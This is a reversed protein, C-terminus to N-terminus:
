QFTQCFDRVISVAIKWVPFLRGYQRAGKSEMNTDLLGVLHKLNFHKLILPLGLNKHLPQPLPVICFFSLCLLSLFCIVHKPSFKRIKELLFFIINEKLPNNSKYDISLPCTKRKYELTFM